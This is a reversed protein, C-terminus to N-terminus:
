QVIRPPTRSPWVLCLLGLTFGTALPVGYWWHVYVMILNPLNDEPATRVEVLTRSFLQIVVGVLVSIVMLALGVKQRRTLYM